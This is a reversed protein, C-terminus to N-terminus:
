VECEPRTSAAWRRQLPWTDCLLLRHLRFCGAAMAAELGCPAHLAHKRGSWRATSATAALAATARHPARLQSAAVWGARLPMPSPMKRVISVILAGGSWPAMCAADLARVM